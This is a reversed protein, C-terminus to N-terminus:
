GTLQGVARSRGPRLRERAVVAEDREEPDIRGWAVEDALLRELADALRDPRAMPSARAGAHGRGDGRGRRSRQLAAYEALIREWAAIDHDGTGDPRTARLTPGGDEFLLWPHASHRAFPLLVHRAGSARFVELLPGEHASGPGSAKFWVTGGDTPIRIATSWPRVHPQEWSGVVSRGLAALEAEAWALAGARWEPDLWTRSGTPVPVRDGSM